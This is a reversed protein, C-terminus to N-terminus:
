LFCVRPDCTGTLKKKMSKRHQNIKSMHTDCIKRGHKKLTKGHKSKVFMNSMDEPFTEKTKTKTKKM